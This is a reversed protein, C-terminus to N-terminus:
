CDFSFFLVGVILFLLAIFVLGVILATIMIVDGTPVPAEAAQLVAASDVVV